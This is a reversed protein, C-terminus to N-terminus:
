GELLEVPAMRTRTAGTEPDTVELLVQFRGPRENRLDLDFFHRGTPGESKLGVRVAARPDERGMGDPAPALSVRVDFEKEQAAPTDPGRYLEFYVRLLDEQWFRSAPLLPVPGDGAPYEPRPAIGVIVDSIEVGAPDRVLPPGIEFHASGPYLAARGARQVEHRASVSLHRMEPAHRLVVTSMHEADAVPLMGARIMEDFRGNRAIATHRASYAELTLGDGISDADSPPTWRPSSVALVLIRPEDGELIRAAQASLASRPANDIESWSSPRPRRAAQADDEINRQTMAELTGERPLRSQNWLTSLANFRRGYPGGMRALDAYYFYELYHYARISQHRAAPSYRANRPIVEHLGTVARFPGTGETNGFLFHTFEGPHLTAYRWVEYQPQRDFRVMYEEPLGMLRRESGSVGLHGRLARDPEGYKVFFSGRDDTRYPSSRNYVFNNRAYAIRSWHEVLRENVMTTPTPDREIWFRKVALALAAPDDRGAEAWREATASDALAFTRAGEALIERRAEDGYRRGSFGWYFVSAAVEEYPELAHAAVTEVFAVAIRPDEAGAATLSDRVSLWLRLAEEPREAERLAQGREFPAQIRENSQGNHGGAGAALVILATLGSAGM